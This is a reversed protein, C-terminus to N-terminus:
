WMILELMVASQFSVESSSSFDATRRKIRQYKFLDSIRLTPTLIVENGPLSFDANGM